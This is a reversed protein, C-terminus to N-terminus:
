EGSENVRATEIGYCRREFLGQDADIVEFLALPSRMLASGM